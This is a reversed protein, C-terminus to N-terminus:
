DDKKINLINHIIERIEPLRTIEFEPHEKFWRVNLPSPHPLVITKKGNIYNDKFILDTFNEKPFFAKTSKAGIIVYLENRVYSIEKKVWTEFCVKPPSKDIGRENKGPYCHCLATIYFNDPNYFIHDEIKYWEYKLREGSKDTFPKRTKHVTASPAQSIQMIKSNINGFVVPHPKFGFNKECINCKEISCKLELFEKEMM